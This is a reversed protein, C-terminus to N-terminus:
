PPALRFASLELGLADPHAPEGPDARGVTLAVPQPGLAELASGPPAGKTGVFAHSQRFRGRLDGRVGLARLAEVAQEDLRASAEDKAAGAVLTGPPLRAVWAALHASADPRSFTDFHATDLLRGAPDMAVLNYGRLNPARETANVRISGIRHEVAGSSRVHLDAASVVGTGGVRHRPDPPPLPRDYGFVLRIENPAARHFPPTLPVRVPTPARPGLAVRGVPRGNVRVEVWPHTGPLSQLPRLTAELVPRRALLDHSVLRAVELGREPGPVLEYLDVEDFTGRFRLFPPARERLGRWAAEWTEDLAPDSVRVVLYRLPHIRRLAEQAEEVPFPPGPRTLLGSLDRLAGPVFGSVGNVIRKGHVLSRFMADADTDQVNTPWELVAVDDPDDRLRLDVARAVAPLPEYPMPVRAYELALLLTLAAVVVEPVPLVPAAPWRLRLRELLWKAGFAALLAGALLALVGIRTPGRIARLPLLYPWLWAYLGEDIVRARLAVQPGLSLLGAVAFLGLLVQVWDRPALRRSADGARWRRWGEAAHRALLVVVLAAGLETFPHLRAGGLPLSGGAAVTVAGAAVLAVAAAALWREARGPRPAAPARRLWLLGSGALALGTVGLFLSAEWDREVTFARYLWNARGEVYTTLDASRRIADALDRELGLEGRTVFYPAALPALAAGLVGLAGAALALSRGRWGRWRLLAVQTGVAVLGFSLIIAYYWVSAAQVWFAVVLLALHRPRQDELFRVLAYVAIPLGFAMEMQFEQFHDTRYPSFTFVLGAVLAAAHRGTLRHAVWHVAWGSLAWFPLLTLNYALLPNGTLAHLPGAVLSPILLPEALSLTNGFPYFANGHFLLDPQRLLNGWMTLLVWTFLRPDISPAILHAPDSALPWTYFVVLALYGLFAAAHARASM